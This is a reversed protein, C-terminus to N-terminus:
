PGESSPSGRAAGGSPSRAASSERRYFRPGFLLYCCAAVLLARPFLHGAATPIAIALAQVVGMVLADRARLDPYTFPATMLVALVATGVLLVNPEMLGALYAAGLVTAALTTQVGETHSVGLDDTTYLGLRTVAMVLFAMAVVIPLVLEPALALGGEPTAIYFVLLAPAVGFSVVDALSDLVDGVPTHGYARALVGDLGDAVAALLVLRAALGPDIPAAIVALLGLAANAITVGDALGLRGVFRPEM